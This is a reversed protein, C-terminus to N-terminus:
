DCVCRPAESTAKQFGPGRGLGFFLCSPGCFRCSSGVSPVEIEHKVRFENAPPTLVPLWFPGLDFTCKLRRLFRIALRLVHSHLARFAAGQIRFVCNERKREARLRLGFGRSKPAPSACRMLPKRYRLTLLSHLRLSATSASFSFFQKYPPYLGLLQKARFLDMRGAVWRRKSNPRM